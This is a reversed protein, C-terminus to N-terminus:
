NNTMQNKFNELVNELITTQNETLINSNTVNSVANTDIINNAFEKIDNSSIISPNVPNSKIVYDYSPPNDYYTDTDSVENIQTDSVDNVHTDSNKIFNIEAEKIETKIENIYNENIKDMTKTDINKANNYIANPNTDLENITAQRNYIPEVNTTSNVENITSQKNTEEIIINNKPVWFYNIIKTKLDFVWKFLNPDYDNLYKFGIFLCIITLGTIIFKGGLSLERIVEANEVIHPTSINPKIAHTKQINEAINIADQKNTINNAYEGMIKPNKALIQNSTITDTTMNMYKQALKDTFTSKFSLRNALEQVGSADINKSFNQFIEYNDPTFQTPKNNVIVQQLTNIENLSNLTNTSTDGGTIRAVNRTIPATKFFWSSVWSSSASVVKWVKSTSRYQNFDQHKEAVFSGLKFCDYATQIFTFPSTFINTLATTPSTTLTLQGSMYRLILANLIKFSTTGTWGYHGMIMTTALNAGQTILASKWGSGLFIKAFNPGKDLILNLPQKALHILANNNVIDDPEQVIPIGGFDERPLPINSMNFFQNRWLNEFFGGPYHRKIIKKTKKEKYIINSKITKLGNQLSKVVNTKKSLRHSNNNITCTKLFESQPSTYSQLDEVPKYFISWDYKM